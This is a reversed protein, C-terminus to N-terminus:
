LVLVVHRIARIASDYMLMAHRWQFDYAVRMSFVQGHEAYIAVASVDLKEVLLRCNLDVASVRPEPSRMKM